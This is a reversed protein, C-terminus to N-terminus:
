INIAQKRNHGTWLQATYSRPIATNIVQGYGVCLGCIDPISSRDMAWLHGSNIVQGYGMAWAYGAYGVPISSRDMAWADRM